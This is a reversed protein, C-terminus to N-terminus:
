ARTEAEVLSETTANLSDLLRRMVPTPISEKEEEGGEGVERGKVVEKEEKL